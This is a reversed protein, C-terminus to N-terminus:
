PSWRELGLVWQFLLAYQHTNIIWASPRCVCACSCGRTCVHVCVSRYVYVFFCTLAPPTVPAPYKGQTGTSLPFSFLSQTGAVQSGGTRSQLSVVDLCLTGGALILDSHILAPRGLEPTTVLYCYSWVSGLVDSLSVQLLDIVWSTVQSNSLRDQAIATMRFIGTGAAGQVSSMVTSLGPVAAPMLPSGLSVIKKKEQFLTNDNIFVHLVPPRHWSPCCCTVRLRPPDGQHTPSQPLHSVHAM